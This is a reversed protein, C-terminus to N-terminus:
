DVQLLNSQYNLFSCVQMYLRGVTRKVKAYSPSFWIMFSVPGERSRWLLMEPHPVPRSLPRFTELLVTDETTTFLFFESVCPSKESNPSLEVIFKKLSDDASILLNLPNLVNTCLNEPCILSSQVGHSFKLVWRCVPFCPAPLIM